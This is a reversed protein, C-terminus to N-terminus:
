ASTTPSPTPASTSPAAAPPTPADPSKSQATKGNKNNRHNNARGFLTTYLQPTGDAAAARAGRKLAALGSEWGQAVADRTHRAERVAAQLKEVPRLENELTTAAKDVAKAADLTAKSASKRQVAAALQHAAKAKDAASMNMMKSAPPAGFAAFPNTRQEGDFILSRVLAEIAEHQAVECEGVKAQVARLQTEAADVKNQADTYSRHAQEFATLRAKVLRTDVARAAALVAGGIQLRGGVKVTSM